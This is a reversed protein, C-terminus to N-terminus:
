EVKIFDYLNSNTNNIKQIFLEINEENGRGLISERLSPNMTGFVDDSKSTFLGKFANKVQTIDAKQGNFVYRLNDINDTNKLYDM